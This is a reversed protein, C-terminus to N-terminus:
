YLGLRVHVFSINIIHLRASKALLSRTEENESTKNSKLFLWVTLHKLGTLLSTERVHIIDKKIKLTRRHKLWSTKLLFADNYKRTCLSIKRHVLDCLFNLFFYLLYVLTRYTESVGIGTRTIVYWTKFEATNQRTKSARSNIRGTFNASSCRYGGWVWSLSFKTCYKFPTNNCRKYWHLKSIFTAWVLDDNQRISSSSRRRRRLMRTFYAAFM